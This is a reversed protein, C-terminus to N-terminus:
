AVDLRAPSTSAQAVLEGDVSSDDTGAATTSSAVVELTAVTLAVAATCTESVDVGRGLTWAQLGWLGSLSNGFRNPIKSSSSSSSKTVSV